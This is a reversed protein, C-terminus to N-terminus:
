AATKGHEGRSAVERYLSLTEEIMREVTFSSRVRAAAADGMSKQLVADGLLRALADRLARADRPPVVYGTEGNRNVWGVGTGIDTSVVPRGAAMAELQVVGFAEQRTVSPLVFVHCALYLAALDDADVTGLFRV